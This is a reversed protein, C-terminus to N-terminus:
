SSGGSFTSRSGSSSSGSGGSSSRTGSGSSSSGQGTIGSPRPGYGSDYGPDYSPGYTPRYGFGGPSRSWFHRHYTTYHRHYPSSSTYTATEVPTFITQRAVPTVTVPAGGPAVYLFPLGAQSLERFYATLDDEEDGAKTGRPNVYVIKRVGRAQLVAAAPFDSIAHFFRNDFEDSSPRADKRALRNGELLFAPLANEPPKERAAEQAYYLLAGLPRELPILGKQHPWNNITVVPQFGARLLVMGWAVSKEGPMDVFVAAERLDITQRAQTAASEVAAGDPPRVPMMASKVISAAAILTPKYYPRWPSKEPPVWAAHLATADLFKKWGETKLSDDPSLDRSFLTHPRLEPARDPEGCGLAGLTVGIFGGGVLRRKKM